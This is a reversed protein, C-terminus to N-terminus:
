AFGAALRAEITTDEALGLDAWRARDEVEVMARPALGVLEARDIHVGPTLATAVADYLHSLRVTTTDIVNCSIQVQDGLAFALARVAPSRLAAAITRADSLSLGAVWLNWAVLIPRAGACSAGTRALPVSPGLDPALDGFARRRIEPLTRVGGGPLPGYLFVPIRCSDAMWAATEDRLAVARATGTSDLAVFPVVDVVGLCPHVGAHVTLDIEAIAVNILRRVARALAGPEDILTFVSRHHDPDSHTDRLAAGAARRLQAIVPVRRGEAVNVVCEFV